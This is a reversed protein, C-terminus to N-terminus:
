AKLHTFTFCTDVLLCRLRSATEDLSNISILKYLESKYLEREIETYYVTYINQIVDFVNKRNKNLIRFM